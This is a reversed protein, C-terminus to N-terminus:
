VVKRYLTADELVEGVDHRFKANQEIPMAIPECGTMGLKELM